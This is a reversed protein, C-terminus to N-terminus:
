FDLYKGCDLCNYDLGTRIHACNEDKWSMGCDNCIFEKGINGHKCHKRVVIISQNLTDKLSIIRSELEKIEDRIREIHLNTTRM